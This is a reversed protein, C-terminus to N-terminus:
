PVNFRIAVTDSDWKTYPNVTVTALQRSTPAQKYADSTQSTGWLYYGASNYLYAQSMQANYFYSGTNTNLTGSNNQAMTTEHYININTYGSYIKDGSYTVTHDALVAWTSADRVILEVTDNSSNHTVKVDLYVQPATFTSGAWWGNTTGTAGVYTTGNWYYANICPFWGIGPSYVVGYDSVVASDTTNVNLMMYARDTSAMSSITPLTAFATAEKYGTASKVCYYTGTQDGPNVNDRISGTYSKVTALSDSAAFDAPKSNKYRNPMIGYPTKFNGNIDLTVSQSLDPHSAQKYKITEKIFQQFIQPNFSNAKAQQIYSSLDDASLANVEKLTIGM